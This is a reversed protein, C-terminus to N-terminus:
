SPSRFTDRFVMITIGFMILVIGVGMAVGFWGVPSALNPEAQAPFMKIGVILPALQRGKEFNTELRESHYSWIRYFRGQLQAHRGIKWSQEGSQLSADPIFDNRGTMVITVPFEGEFTVRNTGNAPVYEVRQGPIKVFGDFQYYVQPLDGYPESMEVRSGKVLRVKWDVNCCIHELSNRLIEMPKQASSSGSLSNREALQILRLLPEREKESLAKENANRLLDIWHLDWGAEALEQWHVPLAPRVGSLSKATPEEFKWSPAEAFMCVVGKHQPDEASDESVRELNFGRVLAPQWLDDNQLWFKPVNLCFVRPPIVTGQDNALGLQYVAQRPSVSFWTQQKENLELPCLQKVWGSLRTPRLVFSEGVEVEQDVSWLREWGIKDLAHLIKLVEDAPLQSDLNPSDKAERWYDKEFIERLMSGAINAIENPEAWPPTLQQALLSQQSALEVALWIPVLWMPQRRSLSPPQMQSGPKPRTRRHLSFWLPIIAVLSVLAALVLASTMQVKMGPEGGSRAQALDNSVAPSVFQIVSGAFITPSVQLGAPSSYALRKGVLGILEIEPYQKESVTSHFESALQLTTYVGIPQSAQDAGQLWMVWYDDSEVLPSPRLVHEVRRVTGRFRIWQGRLELFNAQLQQTSILPPDSNASTSRQLLRWFALNETPRWPAADLLGAVLTADLYLTLEQRMQPGPETASTGPESLGAHSREIESLLSNWEASFRRLLAIWIEQDSAPVETSEASHKDFIARSTTSNDLSAALEDLLPQAVQSLAALELSLEEPQVEKGFHVSNSFMYLALIEIARPSASKLIRPVLDHCAIRWREDFTTQTGNENAPAGQPQRAIERDLAPQYSSPHSQVAIERDLPVGVAQFAQRVVQPDSVRQMLVIVLGLLFVLSILRRTGSRNASVRQRIQHQNEVSYWRNRKLRVM